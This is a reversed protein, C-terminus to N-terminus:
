PDLTEILVCGGDLEVIKSAADMAANIGATMLIERRTGASTQFILRHSLLDLVSRDVVQWVWENEDVTILAEVPALPGQERGNQRAREVLGFLKRTAENSNTTKPETSKRAIRRRLGTMHMGHSM